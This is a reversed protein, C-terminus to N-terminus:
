DVSSGDHLSSGCVHLLLTVHVLWGSAAVAKVLEHVVRAWSTIIAGTAPQSAAAHVELPNSEVGKEADLKLMLEKSLALDAEM